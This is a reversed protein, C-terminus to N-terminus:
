KRMGKVIVDTSSAYLQDEEGLAKYLLGFLENDSYNSTSSLWVKEGSWAKLFLTGWSTCLVTNAPLEVFNEVSYTSLVGDSWKVKITKMELSSVIDNLEELCEALNM